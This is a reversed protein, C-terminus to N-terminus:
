VDDGDSEPELTLGTLGYEKTTSQGDKTTVVKISQTSNSKILGVWNMDEDLTVAGKTGGVIEVTTTAGEDAEFKLALYNGEQETPESSFQTYGTVYHLTGTIESDGVAVNSQLDSVTKGFVTAEGGEPAVSLSPLFPRLRSRRPRAM